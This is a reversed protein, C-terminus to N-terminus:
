PGLYTRPLRVLMASLSLMRASKFKQFALHLKRVPCIAGDAPNAIDHTYQISKILLLGLWSNFGVIKSLLNVADQIVVSQNEFVICSPRVM